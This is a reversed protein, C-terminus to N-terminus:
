GREQEKQRAITQIRAIDRRNQRVVHHAAMQGGAVLLRQKMQLARKESLLSKLEASTKGRLESVNM